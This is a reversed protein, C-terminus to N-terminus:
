IGAAYLLVTVPIFFLALAFGAADFIFQKDRPM